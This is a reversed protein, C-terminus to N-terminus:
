EINCWLQKWWLTQLLGFRCFEEDCLNRPWVLKPFMFEEWAQSLTSSHPHPPTVLLSNSWTIIVASFLDATLLSCVWFAWSKTGASHL